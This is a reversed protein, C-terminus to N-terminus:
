QQDGNNGTSENKADGDGMRLRIDVHPVRLAQGLERVATQLIEDIDTQGTLKAAIESVMREREAFRQSEHFLRANDLSIALRNVLEEALLVKNYNFDQEPMEWEIAGLIQERYTIPIAIPITQRPTSEGVIPKGGSLAARRLDSTDTGTSTGAESALIQTHQDSMYDKWALLTAEQQSQELERLHRLSEQHLRANQIAIAIQDSMTQLVSIQDDHFSDSQKSQVDLVGIVIEGFRLPIALESNTEPLFENRRHVESLSIDHVLVPHGEETVQGIVSVSGVELRHGSEMLKQGAEGSSAQLIAYRRDADILFIQAHYINPFRDIILGVVNETLTTLDRQTAAVRSIDQTAEMDRSRLSIRLVFNDITTQMQQRMDLFSQTLEGIEDGREASDVEITFNGRAVGIIAQQLKTLPPTIIWSFLSVLVVLPILIGAVVLLAREGIYDAMQRTAFDSDIEAVLAFHKGRLIPISGYYGMVERDLDEGTWYVGFGTRNEELAWRTGESNSSALGQSLVEPSSGILAEESLALFSYAPLTIDNFVLNPTIIRDINLTAVLYGLVTGETQRIVSVVQIIPNGDDDVTIVIDQDEDLQSLNEGIRFMLTDSVNEGVEVPLNEGSVIVVEDEASIVWLNQYFRDSSVSFLNDLILQVPGVFSGIVQESLGDAIRRMLGTLVSQRRAVDLTSLAQDIDHKVAKQQRIGSETIFSRVNQTSIESVGNWIIIFVWITPILVAVAFGILLKRWLPWSIFNLSNM